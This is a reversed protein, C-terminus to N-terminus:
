VSINKGKEEPFAAMGRAGATVTCLTKGQIPSVRWETVFSPKYMSQKTLTMRGNYIIVMMELALVKINKRTTCVANLFWLEGQFDANIATWFLFPEWTAEQMLTVKRIFSLALELFLTHM